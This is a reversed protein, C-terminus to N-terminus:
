PVMGHVLLSCADAQPETAEIVPGSYGGGHALGLHCFEHALATQEPDERDLVYVLQPMACGSPHGRDVFCIGDLVARTEVVGGRALYGKRDGSVKIAADAYPQPDWTAGVALWTGAPAACGVLLLLALILPM